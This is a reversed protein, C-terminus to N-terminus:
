QNPTWKQFQKKFVAKDGLAWNVASLIGRAWHTMQRGMLPFRKKKLDRNSSDLRGGLWVTTGRAFLQTKTDKCLFLAPTAEGGNVTGAPMCPESYPCAPPLMVTCICPKPGVSM